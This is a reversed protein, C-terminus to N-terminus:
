VGRNDLDRSSRLIELQVENVMDIMDQIFFEARM